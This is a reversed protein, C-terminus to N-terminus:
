KVKKWVLDQGNRRELMLMTGSDDTVFLKRGRADSKRFFVNSTEAFLAEPKHKNKQIFLTDNSLSIVAMNDATLEYTGTYKKLTAM